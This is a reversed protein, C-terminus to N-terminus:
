TVAARQRFAPKQWEATVLVSKLTAVADWIDQYRVYLPTFGFRMLDPARFDGIVRHSILAQMVAYGEAHAYSVQSGRAKGETPSALTLGLGGCEQTVLKILLDGLALSKERLLAMDIGDFTALGCELAAMSLVPPTGVLFRDIGAKPQYATEFAFPAAHGFWGFLPQQTAELWRRAVFLFAPAGPGGNLYKYGCGIAFDAGTGNLDVPLAGASHALDWLTLVGAAKARANIAAMDHKRGTRYDIETLMVVAVDADLRTIVDDPAVLELRHGQGLLQALGQAMYLDTPFNGTDSLIVKRTPQLSLAASLLKFVNLSTSDCVVVEDAEAGILKALTAGLRRPLAVWGHKNWGTILDQGWQERIVADLRAPTQKPLAGLSNGDLYVMGDPVEFRDRAFALPDKADLAECQARDILSM